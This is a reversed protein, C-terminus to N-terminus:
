QEVLVKAEQLTTVIEGAQIRVVGVVADNPTPRTRNRRELGADSELASLTRSWSPAKRKPVESTTRPIPAVSRAPPKCRCVSCLRLFFSTGAKVRQGKLTVTARRTATAPRAPGQDTNLRQAFL